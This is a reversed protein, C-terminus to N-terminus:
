GAPSSSTEAIVKPLTPEVVASNLKTIGTTPPRCEVRYLKVSKLLTSFYIIYFYPHAM